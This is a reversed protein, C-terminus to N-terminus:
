NNVVKAYFADVFAVGIVEAVDEKLMIFDGLVPGAGSKGSNIEGPVM